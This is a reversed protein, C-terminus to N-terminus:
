NWAYDPMIKNYTTWNRSTFYTWNTEWSDMESYDKWLLKADSSCQPFCTPLPAAFSPHAMLVLNLVTPVRHVQWDSKM